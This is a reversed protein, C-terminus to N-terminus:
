LEGRPIATITPVRRQMHRRAGEASKLASRLKSKTKPCESPLERIANKILAIARDVRELDAPPAPKLIRPM